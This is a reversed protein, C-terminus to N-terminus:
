TLFSSTLPQDPGERKSSASLSLSPRARISMAYIFPQTASQDRHAFSFFFISVRRSNRKTKLEVLFGTFFWGCYTHLGPELSSPDFKPLPAANKTFNGGQLQSHFLLDVIRYLIFTPQPCLFAFIKIINRPYFLRLIGAKRSRSFSLDREAAPSRLFLSFSTCRKMQFPFEDKRERGASSSTSCIRDLVEFGNM